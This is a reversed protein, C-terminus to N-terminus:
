IMIKNEKNIKRIDQIIALLSKVRSDQQFVEKTDAFQNQPFIFDKAESMTLAQRKTFIIKKSINRGQLLKSSSIKRLKVKKSYNSNNNKTLSISRKNRETRGTTVSRKQGFISIRDMKLDRNTSKDKSKLEKEIKKEISNFRETRLFNQSTKPSRSMPRKFTKPLRLAVQANDPATQPINLYKKM